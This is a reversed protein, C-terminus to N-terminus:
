ASPRPEDVAPEPDPPVSPPREGRPLTFRFAAGGGPRNAAAIAGGHAEVIGRCVTLGLGVGGEPAERGGRYFREFVRSEDGPALGPGRDAVEVVLWPGEVRAEIDIPTGPPTHRLANELLNVLVGEILVGDMPVLPLDAPLRTAVPRDALRTELRTLAAGVIEELPHWEKRVQIAGAELRTMDFLNTVLRNLREAEEHAVALLEQRTGADLPHRSDLLSSTAGTITALPTRLDHSVASLLASRLRETEAHVTARQAEDALRARELALATQDAFADLLHRQDPEYTAPATAPRVALVGVTGRAGRLPLYLARAGPLTPSGLGAPQGHEFVWQAVAREEPEAELGELGGAGVALAGEGAPTLIAVAGRFVEAVHRVAGAMVPEVGEARALDRSLAYLAATRAARHGARDAHQRVRVTLTSVVLAVVLMVVFTLLYETDSVTFSLYPPVFLVDFAAVGLLAALMSPWRSGRVAVLVVALLYVMVLSSLQFFPFMAWAVGTAMAVAAVARGVERWPWPRDSPVPDAPRVEEGEGTIVYIDIDGSRRVLDGVVSGRVAERWRSQGTKGVVIKSANRSRAYRVLEEALDHGALTATEAGLSEALRLTQVVQDRDAASAPAGPREVYAVVWEARMAAAMRRATRVVRAALPSPSVAVVIRESVPWTGPIAHQRRYAEMEADVRATTLRLALERLAMLNGKRFFKRVAREAQEPVYVKGERLRELLGEPPLDVLEVEDAGELVSDPVTERVVIGTIRAVIDNLSELHQINVTTYVDIGAEVLEGVDQWRKAHRSGPANTHALEDVLLLGPRRGLAADLDLERLRAGHYEVVRAPLQELGELLAETEKRGHPEVYGVVVDRGSARHVRAAELMAYTKGVGAAAGLFVKLTGRGRRVGEEGVRALLADPDPRAESM